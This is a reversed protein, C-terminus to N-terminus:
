EWFQSPTVNATSHKEIRNSTSLVYLGLQSFPDKFFPLQYKSCSLTINQSLETHHKVVAWHLTRCCSLTINLLLEYHHEAVASHSTKCCQCIWHAYIWFPCLACCVYFIYHAYMKIYVIKLIAKKCCNWNFLKQFMSVTHELDNINQYIYLM